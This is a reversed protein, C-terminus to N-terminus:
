TDRCIKTPWHCLLSQYRELKPKLPLNQCNDFNIANWPIHRGCRRRYSHYNHRTHKGNTKRTRKKPTQNKQVHGGNLGRVALIIAVIRRKLVKVGIPIDANRHKEM